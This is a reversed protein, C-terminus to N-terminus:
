LTKRFFLPRISHTTTQRELHTHMIEGVPSYLCFNFKTCTKQAKKNKTTSTECALHIKLRQFTCGSVSHAEIIAPSSASLAALCEKPHMNRTHIHSLSFFFVTLLYLTHTHTQQLTCCSIALSLAIIACQALVLM